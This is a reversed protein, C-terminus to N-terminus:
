LPKGSKRPRKRQRYYLQIEKEPLSELTRQLLERLPKVLPNGPNWSYLVTRGLPRKVLVGAAELKKLQNNVSTPYIGFTRAIDLGYGEGYNQLYLLVNEAAKSGFVADLM